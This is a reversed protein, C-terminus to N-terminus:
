KNIKKKRHQIYYLPCCLVHIDLGMGTCVRLVYISRDMEVVSEGGGGKGDSKM